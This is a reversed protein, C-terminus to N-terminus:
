AGTAAPEPEGAELLHDLITEPGDYGTTTPPPAVAMIDYFRVRHRHLISFLGDNAVYDTGNESPLWGREYAEYALLWHESYLDTAKM